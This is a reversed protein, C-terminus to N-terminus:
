FGEFGFNRCKSAGLTAQAELSNLKVRYLRTVCNIVVKIKEFFGGCCM